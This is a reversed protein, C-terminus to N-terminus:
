NCESLYQVLRERGHKEEIRRAFALLMRFTGSRFRKPKGIKTRVDDTLGDLYELDDNNISIGVPNMKVM